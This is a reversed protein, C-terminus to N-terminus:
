FVAMARLFIVPNYGWIMGMAGLLLPLGPPMNTERYGNIGYFGHEVLARGSDAWFVDDGPFDVARAAFFLQSAGLLIILAYVVLDAATVRAFSPGVSARPSTYDMKM